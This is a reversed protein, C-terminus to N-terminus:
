VRRARTHRYNYIIKLVNLNKKVYPVLVNKSLAFADDAVVHFPVPLKNQQLLSGMATNQFIASDASSGFSGVEIFICKYDPDIRAM